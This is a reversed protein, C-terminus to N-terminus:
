MGFLASQPLEGTTTKTGEHHLAKVTDLLELQEGDDM